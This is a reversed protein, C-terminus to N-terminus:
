NSICYNHAPAGGYNDYGGFYCNNLTATDAASPNKITAWLTYHNQDAGIMYATAGAKVGSPDVIEQSIVNNDVLGKSVAGTGTYDVNFWGWGGSGYSAGTCNVAVVYTGCNSYYLELATRIQILDSKRRSDISRTRASNLSALVVSSLIGIIAIVVL